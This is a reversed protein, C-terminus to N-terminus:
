ARIIALGDLAASVVGGPVGPACGLAQAPDLVPLDQPNRTGPTFQLDATYSADNSGNGDTDLGGSVHVTSGIRLFNVEGSINSPGTGSGAVKPATLRNNFIPDIGNTGTGAVDNKGEDCTEGATGVNGTSSGRATVAYTGSFTGSCLLNTENFSYAGKRAVDSLQLPTMQGNTLTRNVLAVSGSVKCVVLTAAHSGTLSFATSLVVGLVLLRAVGKRM